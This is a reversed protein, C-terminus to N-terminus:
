WIRKNSGPAAEHSQGPRASLPLAMAKSFRVGLSFGATGACRLHELAADGVHIGELASDRELHVCHASVQCGLGPSVVPECQGALAGAVLLHGTPSPASIDVRWLLASPSTCCRGRRETPENPNSDWCLIGQHMLRKHQRPIRMCQWAPLYPLESGQLILEM